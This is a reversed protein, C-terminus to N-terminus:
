RVASSRKELSAEAVENAMHKLKRSYKEMSIKQEILAEIRAKREHVARQYSEGCDEFYGFKSRLKEDHELLKKEKKIEKILHKVCDKVGDSKALLYEATVKM